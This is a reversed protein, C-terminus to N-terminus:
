LNTPVVVARDQPLWSLLAVAREAGLRIHQERGVEPEPPQGCNHAKAINVPLFLGFSTFPPIRKPARGLHDGLRSTALESLHRM